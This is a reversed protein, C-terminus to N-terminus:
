QGGGVKSPGGRFDSAGTPTFLPLDRLHKQFAAAYPTQTESGAGGQYVHPFFIDVTKKGNQTLWAAIESPRNGRAQIDLARQQAALELAKFESHEHQNQSPSMRFRLQSVRMEEDIQQRVRPDWAFTTEGALKAFHEQIAEFLQIAEAQTM